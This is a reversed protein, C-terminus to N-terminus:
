IPINYKKTYSIYISKCKNSKTTSNIKRKKHTIDIVIKNNNALMRNSRQHITFFKFFLLADPISPIKFSNM